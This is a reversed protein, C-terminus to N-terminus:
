ILGTSCTFTHVPRPKMTLNTPVVGQCPPRHLLRNNSHSLSLLCLPNRIEKSFKPWKMAIHAIKLTTITVVFSVHSNRNESHNNELLLPKHNPRPNNM